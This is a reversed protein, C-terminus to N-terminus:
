VDYMQTDLIPNNNATGIPLVQADRLRKTVKPFPPGNDGCDFALEMQLYGGYSDPTFSDDAETLDKDSIIRKFEEEFDPDDGFIEAWSATNPNAGETVIIEDKIM